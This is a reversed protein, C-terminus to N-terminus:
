YGRGSTNERNIPLFDVEVFFQSKVPVGLMRGPSFEAKAFASVAADEFVGPPDAKIIALNEMAGTESVLIRLLLKGEQEGAAVPYEITIENLLRPQSNLGIGYSYGPVIPLGVIQSQTPRNLETAMYEPSKRVETKKTGSDREQSVDNAPVVVSTVMESKLMDLPLVHGDKSSASSTLVAYIAQPSPDHAGGGTSAGRSPVMIVIVAIHLFLSFILALELQQNEREMCFRLCRQM